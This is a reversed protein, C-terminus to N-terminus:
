LVLGPDSGSMRCAWACMMGLRLIALEHHCAPVEWTLFYRAAQLKGKYFSVDAANGKALGERRPDGTGALALWDGHARVSEPVAGLEGPQQQGQRPALDTLLGM